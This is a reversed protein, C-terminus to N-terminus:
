QAPNPAFANHRLITRIELHANASAGRIVPYVTMTFTGSDRHVSSMRGSVMMNATADSTRLPNSNLNRLPRIQLLM